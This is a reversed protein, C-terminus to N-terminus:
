ELLVLKAQMSSSALGLARTQLGTEDPGSCGLWGPFDAPSTVASM